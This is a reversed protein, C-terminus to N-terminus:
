SPATVESVNIIAFRIEGTYPKNNGLVSNYTGSIILRRAVHVQSAEAALVELDDGELIIPTSTGLDEASVSQNYVGSNIAQKDDDTVSWTMSLPTVASDDTDTISISFYALGNRTPMETFVKIVDVAM